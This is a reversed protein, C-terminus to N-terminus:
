PNIRLPAFFKVASDLITSGISLTGTADHYLYARSNANSSNGCALDIQVRLTEGKKFLQNDIDIEGTFGSYQTVLNGPSSTDQTITSGIQTANSDVDIHYLKYTITATFTESSSYNSYVSMSCQLWSLGDMLFPKTFVMDFNMTTNTSKMVRTAGIVDLNTDNDQHVQIQNRDLIYKTGSSDKVLNGYFTVYGTQSVIDFFDYSAIQPSATRFRVPITM